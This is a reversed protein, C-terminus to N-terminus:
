NFTEKMGPGPADMDCCLLVVCYFLCDSLVFQTFGVVVFVCIYTNSEDCMDLICVHESM